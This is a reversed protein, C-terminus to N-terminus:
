YVWNLLLKEKFNVLESILKYNIGYIDFGDIVYGVIKM